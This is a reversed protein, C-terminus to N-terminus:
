EGSDKDLKSIDDLIEPIDNLDLWGLVDNTIPTDYVLDYEELTGKIVALEFYGDGGGYSFPNRVISAGFGNDFLIVFHVGGHLTDEKVKAGLQSCKSYIGDYM